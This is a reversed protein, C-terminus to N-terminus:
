YEGMYIVTIYIYKGHKQNRKPFIIASFMLSDYHHLDNSDPLHRIEGFNAHWYRPDVKGTNIAM